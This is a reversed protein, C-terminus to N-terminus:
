ESFHKLFTLAGFTLALMVGMRQWKAQEAARIALGTRVGQIFFNLEPVGAQMLQPPILRMAEDVGQGQGSHCDCGLGSM